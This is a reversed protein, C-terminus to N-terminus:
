DDIKLCIDKEDVPNILRLGSYSMTNYICNKNLVLLSCPLNKLLHNWKIYNNKCDFRLLSQQNSLSIFRLNNDNCIIIRLGSPLKKPLKFINNNSIDLVLLKEPLEPLHSIENNKVYLYKLSPPLTPLKKLKCNNAQM